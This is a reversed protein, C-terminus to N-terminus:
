DKNSTSTGILGDLEYRRLAAARQHPTPHQRPGDDTNRAAGTVADGDAPTRSTTPSAARLAAYAEPNRQALLDTASRVGATAEPNAPFTVPGFEHVRVERITREPLGQPNHDSTGPEENWEEAIVEFRFSSGYGGAKLGPVLERVYNADLLEVEYYAGVADDRLVKPVGLIKDGIQPDYGHNFLCRIQDGREAFTKVFAGKAIRELFRGEWYSNIEYWADFMSFHGVMDPMARDDVDEHEDRLEARTVAPDYQRILPVKM